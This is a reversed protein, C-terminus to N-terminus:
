GLEYGYIDTLNYRVICPNEKSYQVNDNAIKGLIENKINVIKDSELKSSLYRLSIIMQFYSNEDFKGHLVINQEDLMTALYFSERVSLDVHIYQSAFSNIYVHDVDSIDVLNDIPYPYKEKDIIETTNMLYQENCIAIPYKELISINLGDLGKSVSVNDIRSDKELENKLADGDVIWWWLRKVKALELVENDSLYVNGKVNMMKYSAFPTCLYIILISWIILSILLRITKKRKRNQHYENREKEFSFTMTNNQDM